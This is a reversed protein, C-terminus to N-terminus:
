ATRRLPALDGWLYRLFVLGQSRLWQKTMGCQGGLTRSLRWYGKRSAGHSIAQDRSVGLQVLKRIRTRPYRWQKWYCMRVRRRIWEDLRSFVSKTAALGFYGMWGRLYRGLERLMRTMSVGRSRGTIERVRTKLRSLNKATVRLEARRTCFVFGLFEVGDARTIRSKQQNVVLKLKRTLFRSVSAFVRRAAHHTRVLILFDDAYRAFRLGRRQLERDLDDLLINSLLPSLPGGQPTGADTTHIVGEVMVGARLWRGILRLVRKDRVKRAVRSMLVDHQVRDFFKSLDVDVAYRYGQRITQQIQKVAGHASRQPRFGFSSESFDPDFIPTLVQQVAQQILRDLVTPIGLLREGGDPKPITVRRVPQPRYTGDLLQQRITPWRERFHEPFEAITMGDVGPAGRNARVQKWAREMNAPEVVLEMLDESVDGLSPTDTTAACSQGHPEPAPEPSGEITDFPLELQRAPRTSVVPREERNQM